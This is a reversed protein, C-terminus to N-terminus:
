PAREVPRVRGRLAGVPIGLWSFRITWLLEGADLERVEDKCRLNFRVPGVPHSYKYPYVRYGGEEIVLDAGGPMDDAVVRVHEPGVLEGYMRREIAFGSEFRTADDIIWLQDDIWRSERTFTIPQAFRDLYFPGLCFGGPGSYTQGLFARPGVPILESPRPVATRHLVGIAVIAVSTILVGRLLPDTQTLPNDLRANM